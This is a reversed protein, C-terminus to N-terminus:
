LNLVFVIHEVLHLVFHEVHKGHTDYEVRASDVLRELLAHFFLDGKVFEVSHLTLHSDVKIKSFTPAGITSEIDFIYYNQEKKVLSKLVAIDLDKLFNEVETRRFEHTRSWWRDDRWEGISVKLWSNSLPLDQFVLELNM